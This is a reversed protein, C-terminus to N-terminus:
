IPEEHALTEQILAATGRRLRSSAANDSINLEGALWELTTDRPVNYYGAEFASLLAERQPPTVNYGRSNPPEEPYLRRTEFTGYTEEIAEKLTSFAERSPCRVRVVTREHNHTADLIQIDLETFVSLTYDEPDGTLTTSYLRRDPIDTIVRVSDVSPDDTLAEQFASQDGGSAWFIWKVDGNTTFYIEDHEVSMEPVARLAELLQTLNTEYEAILSM